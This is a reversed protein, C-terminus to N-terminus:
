QVTTSVHLHSTAPLLLLRGATKQLPDQTIRFSEVTSYLIFSFLRNIKKKYKTENIKNPKIMIKFTFTVMLSGPLAWSSYM